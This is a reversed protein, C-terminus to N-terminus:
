WEDEDRGTYRARWILGLWTALGILVSSWLVFQSKWDENGPIASATIIFWIVGVILGVIPSGGLIKQRASIYRTRNFESVGEAADSEQTIERFLRQDIPQAPPMPNNSPADVLEWYRDRFEEDTHVGKRRNCPGCLLQLNEEDNSGGRAVPDMHDIELNRISKRAGCYMCRRDQWRYLEQKLEPPFSIRRTPEITREDERTMLLITIIVDAIFLTVASLGVWGLRLAALAIRRLNAAM